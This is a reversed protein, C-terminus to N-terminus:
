SSTRMSPDVVSILEGSEPRDAPGNAVHHLRVIGQPDILVDGGLQSVDATPKKLRRGRLLLGLYAAWTSFGWINWWRGTGMGYGRYLGLSEDMLIPWAIGTERVYEDVLPGGQFTVVVVRVALADLKEENQRM